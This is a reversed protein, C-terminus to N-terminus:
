FRINEKPGCSGMESSQESQVSMSDENVMDGNWLGRSIGRDMLKVQYVMMWHRTHLIQTSTELIQIKCGIVEAVIERM